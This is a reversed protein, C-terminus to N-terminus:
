IKFIFNLYLLKRENEFIFFFITLKLYIIKENELILSRRIERIRNIIRPIKSSPFRGRGGRFIRALLILFNILM